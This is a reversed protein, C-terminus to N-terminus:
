FLDKSEKKLSLNVRQDMKNRIRIRIIEGLNCSFFVFLKAVMM